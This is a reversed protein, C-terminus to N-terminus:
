PAVLLYQSRNHELASSPSPQYCIRHQLHIKIIRRLCTASQARTHCCFDSKCFTKIVTCCVFAQPSVQQTIHAPSESPFAGSQSAATNLETKQLCPHRQRVNRRWILVTLDSIPVRSPMLLPPARLLPCCMKGKSAQTYVPHKVCYLSESCIYPTVVTLHM